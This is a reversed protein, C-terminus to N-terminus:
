GGRAKIYAAEAARRAQIGPDVALVRDLAARFAHDSAMGEWRVISDSSVVVAVYDQSNGRSRGEADFLQGGIDVLMPHDIGYTRRMRNVRNILDQVNINENSRSSTNGAQHIGTVAGVIVADRGLRQQLSEMERMLQASRPDDLEWSYYVVARGAANPTASLWGSAPLPRGRPGRDEDRGSEDGSKREPWDALDYFQEPPAAFPVEPLSRLSVQDQIQKPKAFELERQLADAEMRARIGGAAAADEALLSKVADELSENRVDAYRLQGARDIVYFDPDQDAKLGERFKGSADHAILFDAKRRELTEVAKEWGQPHHAGVVLLGEGGYKDHLSQMVGLMRTSAPNWSAWTAILVVKGDTAGGDLASGNTWETLASWLSSDFARLEMESLEAARGGVAERLVQAEQAAALGCTTVLAGLAVALRMRNM